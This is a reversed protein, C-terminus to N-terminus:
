DPKTACILVYGLHGNKVAAMASGAMQKIVGLDFGPLQLKNLRTLIEAGLLRFRIQNVMEELAYNKEKITDVSFGANRVFECYGEVTQADGICAIWALLGNMEQPLVREKTLDSIGVCGRPRLVRFFEQAAARKDPFTCFACECILADFSEDAFPLAEADSREFHLRAGLREVQSLARAAEVNKDSYDIGLVECGFEKSLFVATTGNGCAV